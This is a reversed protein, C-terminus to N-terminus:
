PSDPWAWTSAASRWSSIPSAARPSTRRWTSTRTSRAASSSARANPPCPTIPCGAVTVLNDVIIDALSRAHALRVRVARQVARDDAALERGALPQDLLLEGVPQPPLPPRDAGRQQTELVVAEPDALAFAPAAHAADGRPLRDLDELGAGCQLRHGGAVGSLPAGVALRVLQAPQDGVHLPQVGGALQQGHRLAVGDQVPPDELDGPVADRAVDAAPQVRLDHAELEPGHERGPARHLRQGLVRRDDFGDGGPLALGGLGRHPAM